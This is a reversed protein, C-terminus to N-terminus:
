QQSALVPEETEELVVKGEDAAGAVAAEAGEAGYQGAFKVLKTLKGISLAAIDERPCTPFQHDLVDVMSEMLAEYDDDSVNNPDIKAQEASLKQAWVFDAVTMEAMEHKEGNIKITISVDPTLADLDLFQVEQEKTMEISGRLALLHPPENHAAVM